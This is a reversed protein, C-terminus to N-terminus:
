SRYRLWPRLVTYRPVATIGEREVQILERRNLRELAVQVSRKSIGTGSAIEALSVRAPSQGGRTVSWLFVYVLFASPHHDHGVLDPMLTELVYRDVEM